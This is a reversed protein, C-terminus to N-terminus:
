GATASWSACGRTSAAAASSASRCRASARGSTGGSSRRTRTGRTRPSGSPPSGGPRDVRELTLTSPEIYAGKVSQGLAERMDELVRTKTRFGRKVKVKKTGDGLTLTAKWFWREGDSTQYSYAGGRVPRAGAEQWRSKTGIVLRGGDVRTYFIGAFHFLQGPLEALWGLYVLQSAPQYLAGPAPPSRGAPGLRGLAAPTPICGGLPWGTPRRRRHQRVVRGAQQRLWVIAEDASAFEGASPLAQWGTYQEGRRSVGYRDLDRLKELSLAVARLNARSTSFTDTAYRLLGFKSAFSVAVGPHAGSIHFVWASDADLENAEVVIIQEAPEDAVLQTVEFRLKDITGEVSVRFKSALRPRTEPGPWSPLPRIYVHLTVM